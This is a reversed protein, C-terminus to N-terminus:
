HGFTELLKPLATILALVVGMLSEGAILGSSVPITYKEHLVPKAKSLWLALCAGIFMSITNFGNITFALGLGTASPIFKRQKPFRM